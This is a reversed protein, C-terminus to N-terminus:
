AEDKMGTVTVEVVSYVQTVRFLFPAIRRVSGEMFLEATLSM